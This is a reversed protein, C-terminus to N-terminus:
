LESNRRVYDKGKIKEVWFGDVFEPCDPDPCFVMMKYVMMRDVKLESGCEQCELHSEFESTHWAM